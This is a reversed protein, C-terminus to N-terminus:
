PNDGLNNMLLKLNWGTLSISQNGICTDSLITDSIFHLSYKVLVPGLFENETGKRRRLESISNSNVLTDFCKLWYRM